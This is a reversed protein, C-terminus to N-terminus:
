FCALFNTCPRALAGVVLPPPVDTFVCVPPGPTAVLPCHLKCTTGMPLQCFACTNCCSASGRWSAARPLFQGSCDFTRFRVVRSGVAPLRVPSFGPLQSYSAGHFALCPVAHLMLLWNFTEICVRNNQLVSATGVGFRAM